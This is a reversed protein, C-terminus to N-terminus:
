WGPAEAADHLAFLTPCTCCRRRRKSQTTTAAGAGGGGRSPASPTPCAYRRPWAGVGVVLVDDANGTIADAGEVGVVIMEGVDAEHHDDDRCWGGRQRTSRQRRRPPAGDHEHFMARTTRAAEAGLASDHFRQRRSVATRRTWSRGRPRRVWRTRRHRQEQRGPPSPRRGSGYTSARAGAGPM